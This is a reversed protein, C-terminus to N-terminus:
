KMLSRHSSSLSRFRPWLPFAVELFASKLWLYRLGFGRLHHDEAAAIHRRVLEHLEEHTM